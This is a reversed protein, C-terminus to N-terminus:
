SKTCNKTSKLTKRPELKKRFGRIGRFARAAVFLGGLWGIGRTTRVIAHRFCWTHRANEQYSATKEISSSKGDVAHNEM